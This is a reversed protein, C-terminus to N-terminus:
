DLKQKLRPLVSGVDYAPDMLEWKADMSPLDSEKVKLIEMKGEAFGVFYLNTSEDGIQPAFAETINM